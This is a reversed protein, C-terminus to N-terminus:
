PGAAALGALRPPLPVVAESQPALPAVNATGADLTAGDSEVVDRFSFASTDAFDHGNRPRFGSWDGAVHIRLPEIVKKFDLM